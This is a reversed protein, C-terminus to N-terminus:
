KSRFAASEHLIGDTSKCFLTADSSHDRTSTGGRRRGGTHIQGWQLNARTSAERFSLATSHKGTAHAQITEGVNSISTAWASKTEPLLMRSVRPRWLFGDPWDAITHLNMM